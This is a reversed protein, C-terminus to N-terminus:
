IFVRRNAVDHKIDQAWVIFNLAYEVLLIGVKTTSFIQVLSLM